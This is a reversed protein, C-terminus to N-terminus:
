RVSNNIPTMLRQCYATLSELIQEATKVWVFPRPNTNWHEIRNNIDTELEPIRHLTTRGPQITTTIDEATTNCTFPQPRRQLSRGPHHGGASPSTRGHVPHPPSICTGAAATATASDSIIQPTSHASLNDLVV